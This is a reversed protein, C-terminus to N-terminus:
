KTICDDLEGVLDHIICSLSLLCVTIEKMRETDLGSNQSPSLSDLKELNYELDVLSHEIYNVNTTSFYTPIAKKTIKRQYAIFAKFYDLKPIVKTAIYNHFPKKALYELNVRMNSELLM